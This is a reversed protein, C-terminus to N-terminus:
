NRPILAYCTPEKSPYTWNAGMIGCSDATPGVNAVTPCSTNWKKSFVLSGGPYAVNVHGHPVDPLGLVVLLGDDALRKADIYSVKAFDGSKEMHRIIDNALLGKFYSYGTESAIFAVLQNCYSEHEIRGDEHYATKPVFTKIAVECLEKIRQAKENM